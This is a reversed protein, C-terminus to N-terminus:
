AKGKNELAKYYALMDDLWQRLEERTKQFVYGLADAQAELRNVKEIGDRYWLADAPNRIYTPDMARRMAARADDLQDFIRRMYVYCPELTKPRKPKTATSV